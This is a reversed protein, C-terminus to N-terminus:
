IYLFVAVALIITLIILYITLGCSTPSPQFIVSLVGCLFLFFPFRVPTATRGIDKLMADTLKAAQEYALGFRHSRLVREWRSSRVTQTLVRLRPILSDDLDFRDLVSDTETGISIIAGQYGDKQCPDLSTDQIVGITKGLISPDVPDDYTSAVATAEIIWEDSVPFEDSSDAPKSPLLPLQNQELKWLAIDRAFTKAPRCKCRVYPGGSLVPAPLHSKGAVKM